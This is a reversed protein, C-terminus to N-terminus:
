LFWPAEEEIVKKDLRKTPAIVFERPRDKDYLAVRCDLRVHRVPKGDKTLVCDMDANNADCFELSIDEDSSFVKVRSEPGCAGQIAREALMQQWFPGGKADVALHASVCQFAGTLISQVGRQGWCGARWVVSGYGNRKGLHTMVDIPDRGNLTEVIVGYQQLTQKRELTNSLEQQIMETAALAAAQYEMAAEAGSEAEGTEIALMTARAAKAAAAAAVAAAQAAGEALSSRGKRLLVRTPKRGEGSWFEEVNIGAPLHPDANSLPLNKLDTADLVLIREVGAPLDKGFTSLWKLGNLRSKITNNEDTPGNKGARPFTGIVADVQGYWPMLVTGSSQNQEVSAFITEDDDNDDDDDDDDTIDLGPFLTGIDEDDDDDDDTNERDDAWILEPPPAMEYSGFDRFSLTKGGFNTGFSNGLQAFAELNDSDVVSCHLLGLPRGHRRRHNRAMIHFKSNVRATYPALLEQCEATLIRGMSVDLGSQRHLTEAGKGSREPFPDPAGIVIRSVGSLEILQTVPPLTEGKRASLPELTVYLTASALDDRLKWCCASSSHPSPWSVCWERLPAIALGAQELVDQIANKAHTSRGLGMVQGEVSVLVAGVTPNPYAGDDTQATAYEIAVRMHSEDTIVQEQDAVSMMSTTTEKEEEEEEESHQQQQLDMSEASMELDPERELEHVEQQQKQQQEAEEEPQQQQQEEEEVLLELEVEGSESPQSELPEKRRDDRNRRRRRGALTTEIIHYSLSKSPLQQQQQWQQRQQHASRTTLLPVFSSVSVSRQQLMGCFCSSVVVVVVFFSLRVSDGLVAGGNKYQNANRRIPRIM